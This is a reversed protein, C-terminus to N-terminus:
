TTLVPPDVYISWLGQQPPRHSEGYVLFLSFLNKILLRLTRDEESSKSIIRNWKTKATGQFCSSMLRYITTIDKKDVRTLVQDDFTRFTHQMAYECGLLGKDPIINATVEHPTSASTDRWSIKISEPQKYAAKPTKDPIGDKDLVEWAPYWGFPPNQEAKQINM